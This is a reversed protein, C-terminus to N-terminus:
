SPRLLTPHAPLPCRFCFRIKFRLVLAVRSFLFQLVFEVLFPAKEVFFTSRESRLVHAHAPWWIILTAASNQVPDVSTSRSTCPCLTAHLIVCCLHNTQLSCSSPVEGYMFYAFNRAVALWCGQLVAKGSSRRASGFAVSEKFLVTCSPKLM